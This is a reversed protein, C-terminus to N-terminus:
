RSQATTTTIIAPVIAAVMVAAQMAEIAAKTAPGTAEGAIIREIRAQHDRLQRKDCVSGLLRTSHALSLLIVTRPDVEGTETLIANRLRDVMEKKAHRDSLPYTMRRFFIFFPEEKARLVRREVLGEAIRHKLRRISAFRGVWTKLDKPRNASAIKGLCEDLVPDGTPKDDTLRALKHRRSGEVEIRGSLLLEALIAGGLAYTYTASASVTGKEPHLALLLLEEHVKLPRETTM